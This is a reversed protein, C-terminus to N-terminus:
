PKLIHSISLLFSKYSLNQNCIRSYLCVSCFGNICTQYSVILDIIFTTDRLRQLILWLLEDLLIKLLAPSIPSYFAKYFGIVCFRVYKCVPAILVRIQGIIEVENLAYSSSAYNLNASIFELSKDKLFCRM